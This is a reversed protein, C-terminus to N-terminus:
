ARGLVTRRWTFLLVTLLLSGQLTLAAAPLLPAQLEVGYWAGFLLKVAHTNPSLLGLTDYLQGFIGPLGFACGMVWSALSAILAALFSPITDQLVLGAIMGVCAGCLSVGALAALVLPLAGLAPWHHTVAGELPIMLGVGLASILLLRGLRAFVVPVWPAPALRYELFTRREFDQAVSFAGVFASSLFAGLPLLALGIFVLFPVDRPLWPREEVTVGQGQIRADWMALQAATLRNRHNKVTNGDVLGFRQVATPTGEVEEVTLRQVGDPEAGARVVPRMYPLEDSRVADMAEVLEQALPSTPDNVEVDMTPTFFVLGLLLFMGPPQLVALLHVPVAARVLRLENRLLLLLRGM